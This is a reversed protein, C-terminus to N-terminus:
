VGFLIDMRSPYIEDYVIRCAEDGTWYVHWRKVPQTKVDGKKLYWTWKKKRKKGWSMLLFTGNTYVEKGYKKSLHPDRAFPARTM